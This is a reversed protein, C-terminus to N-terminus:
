HSRLPSVDIDRQITKTIKAKAEEGIHIIVGDNVFDNDKYTPLDKAKEKDSAQRAVTSGQRVCVANVTRRATFYKLKCNM